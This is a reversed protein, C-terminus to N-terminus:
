SEAPDEPAVEGEESAESETPETDPAPTPTQVEPMPTVHIEGTRPNIDFTAQPPIGREEAIKAFTKDWEEQLRKDSALFRIKEHEIRKIQTSIADMGQKLQQIRTLDEQSVPEIKNDPM